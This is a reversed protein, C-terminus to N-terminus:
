KSYQFCLDGCCRCTRHAPLAAEASRTVVLRGDPARAGRTRRSIHGLWRSVPRKHPFQHGRSSLITHQSMHRRLSLHTDTRAMTRARTAVAFLPDM